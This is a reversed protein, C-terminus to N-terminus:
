DRQWSLLLALLQGHLKTRSGPLLLLLLLLVAGTVAGTHQAILVGAVTEQWHCTTRDQRALM